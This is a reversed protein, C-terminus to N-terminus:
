TERPRQDIALGIQMQQPCQHLQLNNLLNLEPFSGNVGPWLRLELTDVIFNTHKEPTQFYSKPSFLRTSPM